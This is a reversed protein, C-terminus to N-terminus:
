SFKHVVRVKTEREAQEEFAGMRLFGGSQEPFERIGQFQAKHM